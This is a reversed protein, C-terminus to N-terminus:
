KGPIPCNLGPSCQHGPNPPRRVWLDDRKDLPPRVQSLLSSGGDRMRRFGVFADTHEGMWRGGVVWWGNVTRGDEIWGEM